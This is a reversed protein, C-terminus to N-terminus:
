LNKIVRFMDNLRTLSPRFPDWNVKGNIRLRGVRCFIPNVKINYKNLVFYILEEANLHNNKITSDKLYNIRKLLIKSNKAKSIFFKDNYGGHWSFASVNVKNNVKIKKWIKKLYFKSFSDFKIDDRFVVTIDEDNIKKFYNNLNELLLLQNILNSISKYNDNHGDEFEKSFNLLKEKKNKDVVFEFSNKTINNFNNYNIHGLENSRPNDVNRVKIYSYIVKINPEIKKFYSIISNINNKSRGIGYLILYSDV